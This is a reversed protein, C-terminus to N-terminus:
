RQLFLKPQFYGGPPVDHEVHEEELSKEDENKNECKPGMEILRFFGFFHIKKFSHCSCTVSYFKKDQAELSSFKEFNRRISIRNQFQYSRKFFLNKQFFSDLFSKM